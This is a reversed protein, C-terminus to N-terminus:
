AATFGIMRFAPDSVVRIKKDNRVIFPSFGAKCVTRKFLIPRCFKNTEVM